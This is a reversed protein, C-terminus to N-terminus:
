QQDSRGDFFFEGDRIKQLVERMIDVQGRQVPILIFQFFQQAKDPLPPPKIGCIEELEKLVFPILVLSGKDLDRVLVASDGRISFADMKSLREVDPFLAKLRDAEKKLREAKEEALRRRKMAPVLYIALSKFMLKLVLWNLTLAIAVPFASLLLWIPWGIRFENFIVIGKEVVSVIFIGISYISLVASFMNFFRGIYKKM